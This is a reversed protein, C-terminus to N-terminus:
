KKLRVIELRSLMRISRAPRADKPAVIRMPGQYSFLPKGDLTDAVIVDNGTMAPDLEALSFVVQYGDSASAVVYSALADGRLGGGVPAGAKKLLEVIPVGEYTVKRGDEGNVEVRTRPLGKLDATTLTLPAAGGVIELASPGGSTSTQAAVPAGLGVVAFMSIGALVFSRRSMM